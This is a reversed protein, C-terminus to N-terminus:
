HSSNLRTSKRDIDRTTRHFLRVNLQQELAKLNQSLAARTVGMEAAAKSFSGHRAILAFWGLHPLQQPNM